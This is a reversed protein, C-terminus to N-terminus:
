SVSNNDQSFHEGVKKILIIITSSYNMVNMLLHIESREMQLNDVFLSHNKKKKELNIM